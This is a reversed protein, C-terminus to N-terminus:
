IFKKIIINIKSYDKNIINKNCRVINKMIMITNKNNMLYM